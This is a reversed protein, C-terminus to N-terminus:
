NTRTASFIYIYEIFSIGSFVSFLKWQYRAVCSSWQCLVTFALVWLLTTCQTKFTCYPNCNRFPQLPRTIFTITCRFPLVLHLQHDAMLLQPWYREVPWCPFVCQVWFLSLSRPGLGRKGWSKFTLCHGEAWGHHELSWSIPNGGFFEFRWPGSLLLRSYHYYM